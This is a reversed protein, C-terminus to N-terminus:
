EDLLNKINSSTLAGFTKLFIIKIYKVHTLFKHFM